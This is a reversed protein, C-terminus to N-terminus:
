FSAMFTVAAFSVMTSALATASNTGIEYEFLGASPFNGADNYAYFYMKVHCPNTPAEENYTEVRTGLSYDEEDASTFSSADPCIGEANATLERALVEYYYGDSM